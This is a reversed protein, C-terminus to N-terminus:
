LIKEHKVLWEIRRILQAPEFPKIFVDGTGLAEIPADDNLTEPTSVLIVYPRNLGYKQIDQLMHFDIEACRDLEWVLLQPKQSHILDLGNQVSAATSVSFGLKDLLYKVILMM